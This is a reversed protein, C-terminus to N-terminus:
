VPDILPLSNLYSSIRPFCTNYYNQYSQMYYFMHEMEYVKELELITVKNIRSHM